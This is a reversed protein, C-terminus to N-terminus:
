MVNLVAAWNLNNDRTKNVFFIERKDVKDNWSFSVSDEYYSIDNSLFSFQSELM